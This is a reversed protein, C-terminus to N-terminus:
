EKIKESQNKEPRIRAGTSVKPSKMDKPEGATKESPMPKALSKIGSAMLAHKRAMQAEAATLVHEGMQLDYGGSKMVPGGKHMKPLAAAYTDVNSAKQALESGLTPAPKATVRSPAPKPAAPPKPSPFKSNATALVGKAASVKSNIDDQPM